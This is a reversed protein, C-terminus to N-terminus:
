IQWFKTVGCPKQFKAQLVFSGWLPAHTLNNNIFHLGTIKEFHMGLRISVCMYDRIACLCVFPQSCAPSKLSDLSGPETPMHGMSLYIKTGTNPLHIGYIALYLPSLFLALSIIFLFVLYAFHNVKSMKIIYIRKVSVIITNFCTLNDLM